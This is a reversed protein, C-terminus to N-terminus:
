TMSVWAFTLPHIKRVKTRRACPTPINSSRGTRLAESSTRPRASDVMLNCEHGDAENAGRQGNARPVNRGMSYNCQRNAMPRYCLAGSNGQRQAPRQNPCREGLTTEPDHRSPCIQSSSGQNNAPSCRDCTQGIVCTNQQLKSMKFKLWAREINHKTVIMRQRSYFGYNPPQMEVCQTHHLNHIRPTLDVVRISASINDNVEPPDIQAYIYSVRKFVYRHMQRQM